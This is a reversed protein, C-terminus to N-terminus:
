VVVEARPLSERQREAYRLPLYPDRDGWVVLAPRDLSRLRSQLHTLSLARDDTARYLRLVAFAVAPNKYDRYMREVVDRPLGRPNGHRLLLRTAPLTAMRMFAEGLVLTRWIRALYHWRYGPLVGCNILTVSAFREPHEAAWTLGWPGGFDHLVLHACRVGITDLIGGLHRAYGDVTYDFRDPKDAGGYGPLDPAVARAFAGTRAVLRRWDVAPGPNGHVFVVAEDADAPGAHLYPSRVGDVIAVGELVPVLGDTPTM